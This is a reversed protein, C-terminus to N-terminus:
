FSMGYIHFFPLFALIKDGVGDPGGKWSLQPGEVTQVMLINSVVNTHSLM